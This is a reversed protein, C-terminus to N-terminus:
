LGATVTQFGPLLAPGILAVTAFIVAAIFALLLSYEVATAGAENARFRPPCHPKSSGRRVLPLILGFM